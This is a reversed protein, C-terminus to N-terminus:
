GWFAIEARAPPLTNRRVMVRIPGHALGKIENIHRLHESLPCDV